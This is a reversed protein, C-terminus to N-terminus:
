QRTRNEASKRKGGPGARGGSDQTTGELEQLIDAAANPNGLTKASAAMDALKQRAGFLDGILTALNVEELYSQMLVMAAGADELYRANNLQHNHTAYPFPVLVSPKGAMCLEALTTAGARCLVLDAFAYAEAMDEIFKDVRAQPHVQEYKQNVEEFDQEGAQHWIKVGQERLEALCAIVAQNIGRAGQSGGLVLLNKGRGTSKRLKFSESVAKRVPNGFVRVKKPDFQRYSDPFSLFVLDVRKGLVRNTMGPLSNQEHIATPIGLWKGALVPAFGAYGGFGLVADPRFRRLLSLAKLLSRGMRLLAGVSKFGRGMIGRAPLGMFQLGEKEALRKEPGYEGGVFIVECEPRMERVKEAVALAPFIHGGTGGTTIVLRKLM